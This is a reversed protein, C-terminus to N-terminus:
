NESVALSHSGFYMHNSVEDSIGAIVGVVNGPQHCFM